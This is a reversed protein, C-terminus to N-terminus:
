ITPLVLPRPDTKAHGRLAADDLYQSAIKALRRKQEPRELDCINGFVQTQVDGREGDIKEPYMDFYWVQFVQAEIPLPSGSRAFDYWIIFLTHTSATRFSALSAKRTECTGIKQKRM